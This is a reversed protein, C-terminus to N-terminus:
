WPCNIYSTAAAAWKGSPPLYFQYSACGNPYQAARATAIALVNASSDIVREWGQVPITVNANALAAPIGSDRAAIAVTHDIPIQVVPAGLEALIPAASAAPAFALLVGGVVTTAAAAVAAAKNMRADFM